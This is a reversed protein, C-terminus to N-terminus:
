AEFMRQFLHRTGGTDHVRWVRNASRGHPRPVPIVGQNIENGAQRNIGQTTTRASANSIVFASLEEKWNHWTVEISQMLQFSLDAELIGYRGFFSIMPPPVKLGHALAHSTSALITNMADHRVDTCKPDTPMTVDWPHFTHNRELFASAKGFCQSPDDFVLAQIGVNSLHLAHGGGGGAKYWLHYSETPRPKFTFSLQESGHPAIGSSYVVRLTGDGVLEQKDGIRCSLPNQGKAVVRVGGKQNGWGQDKWTMSVRISHVAAVPVPIAYGYRLDDDCDRRVFHTLV